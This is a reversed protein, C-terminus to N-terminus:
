RQSQNVFNLRLDAVAAQLQRREEPNVHPEIVGALAAVADIALRADGLQKRTEKTVPNAVLGMAEWAKATLTAIMAHILLSTPLATVQVGPTDAPNDAGGSDRRGDQKMEDSM